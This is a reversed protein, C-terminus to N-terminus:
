RAATLKETVTEVSERRVNVRFFVVLIAALFCPMAFVIFFQDFNLGAMQLAGGVLPGVMSGLRGITLAWGVGSSRFQTPYIEGAVVNLGTISAGVSLGILFGIAYLAIGSTFTGFLWTAVGGCALMVGLAQKRGFRDMMGGLLIMGIIGGVPFSLTFGYSRVMTHGAKMLLSPLWTQVGFFALLTLFYVCWLLVTMVALNSKFIKGIGVKASPPLVFSEPTWNVPASGAAKELRRLERIASDNRGKQILFRISEPLYFYVMPILLLALFEVLFLSRWSFRSLLAMAIVGGLIPGLNFGVFAISVAKARVRSPSFESILAITLPTAGGMGLGAAFRLVCLTSFNPSWYTFGTGLSFILICFVLGKKRGLVDGLIGFLVAGIMMGGFTASQASGAQLPTLRWERMFHPILYFIVTSTYGDFLLILSSIILALTHFRNFKLDDCWKTANITANGNM